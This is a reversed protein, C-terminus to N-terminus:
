KVSFSVMILTDEVKHHIKYYGFGWFRSLRTYGTVWAPMVRVLFALADQREDCWGGGRMIVHQFKEHFTATLTPM